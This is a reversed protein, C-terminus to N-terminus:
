HGRVQQSFPAELVREGGKLQPVVSPPNQRVRKEGSRKTEGKSWINQMYYFCSSSAGQKPSSCHAGEAEKGRVRGPLRRPAPRARAQRARGGERGGRRGRGLRGGVGAPEEAVGAGSGARGRGARRRLGSGSAAAARAARCPASRPPRPQPRRAVAAAAPPPPRPPPPPPLRPAPLRARSPPSRRSGPEPAGALSRALSLALSSRAQTPALSRALSM